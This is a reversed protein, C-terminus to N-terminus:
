SQRRDIEVAAATSFRHLIRAESEDIALLDRIKQLPQTALVLGASRHDVQRRESLDAVLVEASEPEILEDPLLARRAAARRAAMVTVPAQVGYLLSKRTPSPWAHTM